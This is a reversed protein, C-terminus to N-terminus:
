NQDQARADIIAQVDAKIIRGDKGSGKVGDLLICNDAAFKAAAESVLSDDDQEQPNTNASDVSAATTSATFDTGASADGADAPQTPQSVIPPQNQDQEDTLEQIKQDDTLIKGKKLGQLANAYNLAMMQVKGNKHQFRVKLAM